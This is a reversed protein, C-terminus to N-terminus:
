TIQGCIITGARDSARPEIVFAYTFQCYISCFISFSQTSQFEKQKKIQARVINLIMKVRSLHLINYINISKYKLKNHDHFLNFVRLINPQLGAYAMFHTWMQKVTGYRNYGGTGTGTRDLADTKPWEGASITPEFGVPVHINTQQSYQTNDPLPRQSPNIM